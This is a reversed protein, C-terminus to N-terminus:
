IGTKRDRWWMSLQILYGITVVAARV